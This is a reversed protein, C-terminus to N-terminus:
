RARRRRRSRPPQRVALSALELAQRALDLRELVLLLRESRAHAGGIVMALVRAGDLGITCASGLDLVQERLPELAPGLEVREGSLRAAPRRNARKSRAGSAARM